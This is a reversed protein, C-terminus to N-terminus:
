ADALQLDWTPTLTDNIQLTRSAPGGVDGVCVRCLLTGVTAASFIGYEVVTQAADTVNTWVDPGLRYERANDGEGQTATLRAYSGGGAAVEANLATDADASLPDNDTGFGIYKYTNIYAAAQLADVIAGIGAYVVKNHGVTVLDGPGEVRLTGHLGLGSRNSLRYGAEALVDDHLGCGTALAQMLKQEGAFVRALFSQLTGM